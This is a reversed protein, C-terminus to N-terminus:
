STSALSRKLGHQITRHTITAKADDLNRSLEQNHLGAARILPSGPEHAWAACFWRGAQEKPLDRILDGGPRGDVLIKLKDTNIPTFEVQPTMHYKTRVTTNTHICM